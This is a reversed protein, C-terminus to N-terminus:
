FSGDDSKKLKFETHLSVKMQNYDRQLQDIKDQLQKVTGNELQRYMKELQHYKAESEEWKAKYNVASKEENPKTTTTSQDANSSSKSQLDHVSTRLREIENTQASFIFSLVSCTRGSETGKQQERCARTGAKWLTEREDIRTTYKRLLDGLTPTTPETKAPSNDDM